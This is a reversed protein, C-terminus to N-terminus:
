SRDSINVGFLIYGHLPSEGVGGRRYSVRLNLFYVKSFSYRQFIHFLNNLFYSLSVLEQTRIVSATATQASLKRLTLEWGDAM